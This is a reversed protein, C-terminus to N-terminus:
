GYIDFIDGSGGAKPRTAAIIEPSPISDAPDPRPEPADTAPKNREFTIGRAKMLAAQMEDSDARGWKEHHSCLQGHPGLHKCYYYAIANKNLVIDVPKGCGGCKCSGVVTGKSFRDFFKM